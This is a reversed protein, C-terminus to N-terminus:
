SVPGGGNIYPGVPCKEPCLQSNLNGGIIFLGILIPPASMLACTGGNNCLGIPFKDSCLQFNLDGGNIFLENLIAPAGM